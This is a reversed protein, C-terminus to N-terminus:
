WGLSRVLWGIAFAIAGFLPGTFWYARNKNIAALVSAVILGAVLCGTVIMAWVFLNAMALGSFDSALLIHM